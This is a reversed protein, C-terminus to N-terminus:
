GGAGRHIVADSEVVADPAYPDLAKLRDYLPGFDTDISDRFLKAFSPLVFYTQQFTDIKYQTRMVRELQFAIRNPSPSDVSFQTEGFSSLMGAGYAKLGDETMILGFEVMYWYLRALIPVADHAIAKPGGLGYHQLYDAFVPDFLLPVHGFVDHFVDPEVLYDIEEPRRIWFSSPFRREALHAFFVDDPILGPVPAIEWGTAARLRASLRDLDPIGDACDMAAISRVFVPPAYARVLGSQREYLRRWLAHEASTYAAMDQRVTWDPAMRSYDGRLGHTTPANALAPPPTQSM